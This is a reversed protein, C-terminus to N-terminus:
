PANGALFDCHPNCDRGSQINKDDAQSLTLPCRLAYFLEVRLLRDNNKMNTSVDLILVIPSINYEPHM